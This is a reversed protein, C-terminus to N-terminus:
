INHCFHVVVNVAPKTWFRSSPTELEERRVVIQVLVQKNSDLETSTGNLVTAQGKLQKCYDPCVFLELLIPDFIHM